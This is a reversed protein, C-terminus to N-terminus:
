RAPVYRELLVRVTGSTGEGVLRVAIAHRGPLARTVLYSDLGGTPADDNEAVVRGLRDFVRIAPDLGETVAVAEALLVGGEPLDVSLWRADDGVAVETLVSTTLAGLEEVEVPDGPAPPFEADGIRRLRDAQPDFPALTVTIPNAEGNLDRLGLCYSGAPLADPTDIRSNLGDFDDNEAILSGDPRHLSLVPDGMESTATASLAAPDALTFGIAAADAVTQTRSPNAALDAAALPADALIAFIDGNACNGPDGANQVADAPDAGPPPAPVAGAAPAGSDVVVVDDTLMPQDTTGVGVTAALDTAAYSRTVLCYAGPQLDVEARADFNGGGDDDAAVERGEADLLAVYPDGDAAAEVRVTAPESMRFLTVARGAVPITVDQLLTAGAGNVVAADPGGELWVGEAGVGGCDPAEQALAPAAATCLLLAALTPRM